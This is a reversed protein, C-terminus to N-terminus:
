ASAPQVIVTQSIHSVACNHVSRTYRIFMQMSSWCDLQTCFCSCTTLLWTRKKYSNHMEQLSVNAAKVDNYTNLGHISKDQNAIDFISAWRRSAMKRVSCQWVSTRDPAIHSALDDLGIFDSMSIGACSLSTLGCYNQLDSHPSQMIISPILALHPIPMSRLAALPLWFPM